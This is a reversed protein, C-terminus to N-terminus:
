LSIKSRFLIRLKIFKAINMYFPIFYKVNSFASNNKSFNNLNLIFYCAMRVYNYIKGLFNKSMFFRARVYKYRLLRYDSKDLYFSFRQIIIDYIQLFSDSYEKMTLRSTVGSGVKYVSVLENIFYFEETSLILQLNRIMDASYGMGIPLDYKKITSVSFGFDRTSLGNRLQEKFIDNDKIRYNNHYYSNGNPYLVKVNGIIAVSKKNLNINNDQIFNLTKQIAKDPLFDDGALISCIDGKLYKIGNNYNEFVGLNKHNFILNIIEPYIEKYGLLIERTMDTSFDDSIVIQFPKVEQNLISDLCFRISDEQNYCIILISFKAYHM